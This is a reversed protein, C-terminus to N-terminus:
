HKARKSLKVLMVEFFKIYLLVVIKKNTCEKIGSKKVIFMPSIDREPEPPYVRAWPNLTQGLNSCVNLPSIPRGCSSLIDQNIEEIDFTELNEFNPIM